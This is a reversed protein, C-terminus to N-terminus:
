LSAADGVVRKLQPARHEALVGAITILLQDVNFPKTLVAQSARTIEPPIVREASIIVVPLTALEAQDRLRQLVRGGGGGPLGLDLTILAPCVHELVALAEGADGATTCSYGHEELVDCLLAAIAPDDEVVLIHPPPAAHM